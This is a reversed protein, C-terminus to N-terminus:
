YLKNMNENFRVSKRAVNNNHKTSTDVIVFSENGFFFGAAATPSQSQQLATSENTEDDSSSCCEDNDSSNTTTTKWKSEYFTDVPSCCEDDCPRTTYHNDISRLYYPQQVTNCTPSVTDIYM